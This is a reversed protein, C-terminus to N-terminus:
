PGIAALDSHGWKLSLGRGYGSMREWWEESSLPLGNHQRHREVDGETAGERKERRRKEEGGRGAKGMGKRDIFDRWTLLTQMAHREGATQREIATPNSM